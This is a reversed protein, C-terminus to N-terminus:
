LATKPCSFVFLPKKDRDFQGCFHFSTCHLFFLPTFSSNVEDRFSYDKEEKRKVAVEKKRSRDVQSSDKNCFKSSQGLCPHSPNVLNWVKKQLNSSFFLCCYVKRIRCERPTKKFSTSEPSDPSAHRVQTSGNKSSQPMPDIMNM